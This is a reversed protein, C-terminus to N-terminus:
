NLLKDLGDASPAGLAKTLVPLATAADEGTVELVLETDPLAGLTMLRTGSKGDVTRDQKRVLVTSRFKGALKSFAFAARMHLGKPNRVVVTARLPSNDANPQGHEVATVM